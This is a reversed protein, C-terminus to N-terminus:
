EVPFEVAGEPLEGPVAGETAGETAEEVPTEELGMEGPPLGEEVVTAADETSELEVPNSDSIGQQIPIEEPSQQAQEAKRRAEARAAQETLELNKEARSVAEREEQGLRAVQRSYAKDSVGHKELVALGAQQQDQILQRREENSLESPKRNGYAANVRAQAAQEDRRIAAIKEPTLEQALAFGPAALWSVLLVVSTRRFM